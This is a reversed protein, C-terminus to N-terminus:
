EGGLFEGMVRSFQDDSMEGLLGEEQRRVATRSVHFRASVSGITLMVAFPKAMDAAVLADYLGVTDDRNVITTEWGSRAWREALDAAEGRPVKVLAVLGAPAPSLASPEGAKGPLAMCEETVPDAADFIACSRWVAPSDRWVPDAWSAASVAPAAAADPTAGDPAPACCQERWRKKSKASEVASEWLLGPIESAPCGPVELGPIAAARGEADVEGLIGAVQSPPFFGFTALIACINILDERRIVFLRDRGPWGPNIPDLQLWAGILVGQATAAENARALEDLDIKADKMVTPMLTRIEEGFRHLMTKRDAAAATKRIADRLRLWTRARAPNKINKIM